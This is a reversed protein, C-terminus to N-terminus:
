RFFVVTQNAFHKSPNGRYSPKRLVRWYVYLKVQQFGLCQEMKIWFSKILLSWNPWKQWSVSYLSTYTNIQTQKYLIYWCTIALSLLVNKLCNLVFIIRYAITGNMVMILNIVSTIYCKLVVAVKLRITTSLQHPQKENQLLTLETDKVNVCSSFPQHANRFLTLANRLMANWASIHKVTYASNSLSENRGV